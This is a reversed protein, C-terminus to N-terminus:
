PSFGLGATRGFTILANLFVTTASTLRRQNIRRSVHLGPRLTPCLIQRVYTQFV